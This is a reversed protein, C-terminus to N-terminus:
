DIEYKKCLADVFENDTRMGALLDRSVSAPWDPAKPKPKAPCIAAWVDDFSLKLKSATVHCVYSYAASRVNDELRSM